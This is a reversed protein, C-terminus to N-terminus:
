LKGFLSPLRRDTPGGAESRRLLAAASRGASAPLARPDGGRHSTKTLLAGPISKELGGSLPAKGHPRSESTRRRGRGVGSARPFAPDRVCCPSLPGRQASPTAGAWGFRPARPGCTERSRSSGGAGGPSPPPLPTPPPAGGLGQGSGRPGGAAGRPRSAAAGKRLQPERRLGGSPGALSACVRRGRSVFTKELDERECGERSGSPSCCGRTRGPARVRRPRVGHDRGPSASRPGKTFPPM